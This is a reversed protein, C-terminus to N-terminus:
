GRWGARRPVGGRAPVQAVHAVQVFARGSEIHERHLFVEDRFTEKSALVGGPVGGTTKEWLFEFCSARM